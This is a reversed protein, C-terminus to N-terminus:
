VNIKGKFYKTALDERLVHIRDNIFDINDLYLIRNVDEDSLVQGKEIITEGNVVLDKSLIMGPKLYKLLLQESDNYSYIKQITKSLFVNVLDPDFKVGSGNKITAEIDEKVYTKYKSHRMNDFQELICLVRSLLPIEEGFLSNGYEDSGDFYDHHHKVIKAINSLGSINNLLNFGLETHKAFIKKESSSFTMRQKNVLYNPLFISGIDHLYTAFKLDLLIDDSLGIDEAFCTAYIYMREVHGSYIFNGAEGMSKLVNVIDYFKQAIRKKKNLKVHKQNDCFEYSM